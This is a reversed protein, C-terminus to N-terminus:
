HYSLPNQIRIALNSDETGLWGRCSVGVTSGYCRDPWSPVEPQIYCGRISGAPGQVM